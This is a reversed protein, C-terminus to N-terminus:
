TASLFAGLRVLRKRQPLVRSAFEDLLQAAHFEATDSPTRQSAAFVQFNRAFQHASDDLTTESALMAQDHNEIAAIGKVARDDLEKGIRDDFAFERHTM